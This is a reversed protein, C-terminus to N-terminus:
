CTSSATENCAETQPAWPDSRIWVWLSLHLHSEATQRLVRRACVGWGVFVCMCECRIGYVYLSGLRVFHPAVKEVKEAELQRCRSEKGEDEM